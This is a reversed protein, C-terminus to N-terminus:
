FVSRIILACRPPYPVPFALSGLSLLIPHVHSCHSRLPRRHEIRRTYIYVSPRNVRHKSATRSTSRFSVFTYLFSLSLLLFLSLSLGRLVRVLHRYWRTVMSSYRHRSTEDPEIAIPSRGGRFKALSVVM